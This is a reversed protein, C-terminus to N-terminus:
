RNSGNPPRTGKLQDAIFGAAFSEVVPPPVLLRNDARRYRGAPLSPDPEIITAPQPNRTASASVVYTRSLDLWPIAKAAAWFAADPEATVIAVAVRANQQLAARADNWAFREKAIWVVLPLKEGYRLSVPRMVSNGALPETEVDLRTSPPVATRQEEGGYKQVEVRPSSEPSEVIVAYREAAPEWALARVISGPFGVSLQSATPVHVTRVLDGTSTRVLYSIKNGRPAWQVAIEDATEEPVWHIDSGDISVLGVDFSDVRKASFVVEKREESVAFSDIAPFAPTLPKGNRELANDRIRVGSPARLSLVPATNTRLKGDADYSVTRLQTARPVDLWAKPIEPATTACASLLAPLLTSFLPKLRMSACELDNIAFPSIKAAM